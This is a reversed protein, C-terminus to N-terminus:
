SWSSRSRSGIGAVSVRTRSSWTTRVRRSPPAPTGVLWARAESVSALHEHLRVFDLVDGWVKCGYCMFRQRDVYVFFSPTRDEHFPCKGQFRNAGSRKLRVGAREAVDLLPYALKVEAIDAHPQGPHTAASSM